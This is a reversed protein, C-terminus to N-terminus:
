FSGFLKWYLFCLLMTGFHIGVAYITRRRLDLQPRPELEPLEARQMIIRFNILVRGVIDQINHVKNRWEEIEQNLTKFNSGTETRQIVDIILL